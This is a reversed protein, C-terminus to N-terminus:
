ASANSLLLPEGPLAQRVDTGFGVKGEVYGEARLPEFSTVVAPRSLGYRAALDRTAPLRAGAPLRGALIAARLTDYLWRYLPMGSPPEQLNMPLTSLQKPM